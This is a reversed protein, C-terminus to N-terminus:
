GNRNLRQEEAIRRFEAMTDVLHWQQSEPDFVLFNLRETEFDIPVRLAPLIKDLATIVTQESFEGNLKFDATAGNPLQMRLGFQMKSTTELLDRNKIKSWLYIASSKLGAWVANLAVGGVVTQVIPNKICLAVQLTFDELNAYIIGSKDYRSLRLEISKLQDTIHKIDSDNIPGHFYELHVVDDGKLLTEKKKEIFKFYKVKEEETMIPAFKLPMHKNIEQEDM